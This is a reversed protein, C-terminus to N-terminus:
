WLEYGTSEMPPIQAPYLLFVAGLLSCIIAGILVQTAYPWVLSYFWAPTRTVGLLYTGLVSLVSLLASLVCAVGSFRILLWTRSSRYPM